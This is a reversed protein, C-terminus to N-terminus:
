VKVQQGLRLGCCFSHFRKCNGAAEDDVLRGGSDSVVGGEVRLRLSSVVVVVVEGEASAPLSGSRFALLVFCFCISCTSAANGAM